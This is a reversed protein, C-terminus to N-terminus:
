VWRIATSIALMVMVRDVGLVLQPDAIAIRQRFPMREIRQGGPAFPRAVRDGACLHGVAIRRHFRGADIGPEREVLLGPKTWRKATQCLLVTQPWGNLLFCYM